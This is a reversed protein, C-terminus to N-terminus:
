DAQLVINPLATKIATLMEDTPVFQCAKPNITGSILISARPDSTPVTAVVFGVYQHGSPLAEYATRGSNLPMPKLAKTSEELIVIHGGQIYPLPFGDTKLTRGGRITDVVQVIAVSDAGHVM